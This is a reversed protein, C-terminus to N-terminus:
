RHRKVRITREVGDIRMKYGFADNMITANGNCDKFRRNRTDVQKWVQGNDFFFYWRGSAGRDCSTMLGVYEVAQSTGLDDPLPQASTVTAAKADPRAAMEEQRSADASAEGLVREGLSDFCALRAEQDTISACVKLEEVVDISQAAGTSAFVTMLFILTATISRTM